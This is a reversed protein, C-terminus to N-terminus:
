GSGLSAARFMAPYTAKQCPTVTSAQPHVLRLIAPEGVGAELANRRPELVDIRLLDVVGGAVAHQRELERVARTEHQVTLAGRPLHPEGRARAGPVVVPIGCAARPDAIAVPVVEVSADGLHDGLLDATGD